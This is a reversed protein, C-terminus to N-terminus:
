LSIYSAFYIFGQQVALVGLAHVAPTFLLVIGGCTFLIGGVLAFSTGFTVVHGTKSAIFKKLKEKWTLKKRESRM